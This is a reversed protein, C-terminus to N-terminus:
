CSEVIVMSEATGSYLRLYAELNVIFAGLTEIDRRSDYNEPRCVRMCEELVSKLYHQGKSRESAITNM